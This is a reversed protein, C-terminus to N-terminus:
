SPFFGTRLVNAKGISCTSRIVHTGLSDHRRLKETREFSDNAESQQQEDRQHGHRNGAYVGLEFNSIISGLAEKDAHMNRGEILKAGDVSPANCKM